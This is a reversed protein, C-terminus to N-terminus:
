LPLQVTTATAQMNLRGDRFRSAERYRRQEEDSEVVVPRVGVPEGSEDIAVFASSTQLVEGVEVRVKWSRGDLLGPEREVKFHAFHGTKAPHVFRM